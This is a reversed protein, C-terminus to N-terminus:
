FDRDTAFTKSHKCTNKSIIARMHFIANIYRQFVAPSNCLGFPARLFEYQGDPVIFAYIQPKGRKDTCSFIWGELMSFYM